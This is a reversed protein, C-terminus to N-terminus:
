SEPTQSRGFLFNHLIQINYDFYIKGTDEELKVIIEFCIKKIITVVQDEELKEFSIKASFCMAFTM